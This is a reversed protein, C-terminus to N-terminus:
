ISQAPSSFGSGQIGFDSGKARDLLSSPDLSNDYPLPSHFPLQQPTLDCHSWDLNKEAKQGALEEGRWLRSSGDLGPSLHWSAAQTGLPSIHGFLRIM